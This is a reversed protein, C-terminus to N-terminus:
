PTDSSKLTNKWTLPLTGSASDRRRTHGSITATDYILKEYKEVMAILKKSDIM